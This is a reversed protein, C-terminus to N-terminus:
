QVNDEPTRIAYGMGKPQSFIHFTFGRTLNRKALRQYFKGLADDAALALYMGPSHAIYHKFILSVVTTFVLKTQSFGLQSLRKYETGNRQNSVSDFCIEYTGRASLALESPLSMFSNHPELISFLHMEYDINGVSFVASHYLCEGINFFKFPTM